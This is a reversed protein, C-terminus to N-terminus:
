RKVCSVLKVTIGYRLSMLIFLSFCLAAGKTTFEAQSLALRKFDAHFFCEIRHREPYVVLFKRRETKAM